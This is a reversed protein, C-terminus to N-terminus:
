AGGGSTATAQAADPDGSGDDMGIQSNLDLLADRRGPAGGIDIVTGSDRANMLDIREQAEGAMPLRKALRKLVRVKVMEDGWPGWVSEGRSLARFQAIAKPGISEVYVGGEMTRAFAYAAVVPQDDSEALPVHKFHAGTEDVWQQFHEGERVVYANLDKISGSMRVLKVLGWVMPQWSATVKGTRKDRYPLIVGERGDPVLGDTAAQICATFFSSQDCDLLKPDNQIALVCVRKFREVDAGKPLAQRIGGDGSAILVNANKMTQIASM